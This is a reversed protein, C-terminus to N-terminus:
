LGYEVLLTGVAQRRETMPARADAAVTSGGTWHFAM